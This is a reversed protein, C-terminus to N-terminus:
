PGNVYRSKERVGKMMRRRDCRTPALGRRAVPRLGLVVEAGGVPIADAAVPGVVKLLGNGGVMIRQCNEGALGQRPVPRAYLVVEASGVQVADAPVPRVVHLFGDGGVPRRERDVRALRQWAVM